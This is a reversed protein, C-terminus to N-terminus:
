RTEIYSPRQLMKQAEKLSIGQSELKDRGRKTIYIDGQIEGTLDNLVLLNLVRTKV